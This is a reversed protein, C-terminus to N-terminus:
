RSGARQQGAGHRRSAVRAGARLPPVDRRDLTRRVGTASTGEGGRRPSWAVRRLSRTVRRASPSELRGAPPRGDLHEGSRRPHRRARVHEGLRSRPWRSSPALEVLWATRNASSPPCRIDHLAGDRPQLISRQMRSTQSSDLASQTRFTVGHEDLCVLRRNSIGGRHTYRSLYRFVRDPGSRRARRRGDRAEGTESCPHCPGM